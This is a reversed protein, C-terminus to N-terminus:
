LKELKVFVFREVLLGIIIVILSIATSLFIQESVVEVRPFKMTETKDVFSSTIFWSILGSIGIVTFRLAKKVLSQFTKSKKAGEATKTPFILIGQIASYHKMEHNKTNKEIKTVKVIDIQQMKKLHHIVLSLGLNTKEAIENATMEHETLLLLMTRSSENSLLEGLFKLKKDETSFITVKENLPNSTLPEETL